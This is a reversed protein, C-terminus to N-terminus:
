IEKLMLSKINQVPISGFSLFKENFDKIKFDSKMKDKYISRLDYIESFGAYYSCLQIQSIEARTWKKAAEENEQFAGETMLKMGDKRSLNKNHIEYDLITNTVVRLFWKYYMLWLAPDNNGYGEELMMRETYVAWGEIMTGNSFLSKILSPSQNAYILQTYHGPIAEHINLIQLTYNNYERLYSESEEATMNELPTINYFTEREKEFPGPSDISAGAFGRAYIPTERVNLPKKPDLSIIKKTEVFRILEPIQKKVTEVFDKPQPHALSLKDIVNQITKQTNRPPKTKGYFKPYLQVALKYMEKRANEKDKIAKKYLQEPTLTIKLDSTFKQDYLTKGLRFDRFGGVSSPNKLISELSRIYSKIAELSALRNSNFINKEQVSIKTKEPLEKLTTEFFQILGTSQKLALETHVKTPRYINKKATKYYLPVSKLKKSLAKFRFTASEKQSELISSMDSGVNYLSPNWQYSKFSQIYWASSEIEDLILEKDIQESLSLTENKFDSFIKKQKLAFSLKANRSDENPIELRSFYKSLGVSAAYDPNLDWLEDLFTSVAKSFKPNTETKSATSCSGLSLLLVFFFFLRM